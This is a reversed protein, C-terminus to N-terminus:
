CKLGEMFLSDPKRISGNPEIDLFYSAFKPIQSEDACCSKVDGFGVQRLSEALSYRDYMWQHIEGSLRFRGIEEPKLVMKAESRKIHKIKMNQNNGMISSVESGMRQLAFSAAPVPDQKLYKLMEGGPENRVMQDFLELLIWEYEKQAEEDGRNSEELLTLYCKVIQELDPVAIRIIGGVNLVRFCEELFPQVQNKPFINM